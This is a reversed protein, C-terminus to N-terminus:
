QPTEFTNVRNAIESLDELIGLPLSDSLFHVSGDAYATTVGGPHASQLPSNTGPWSNTWVLGASTGSKNNLAYRVTTTNFVRANGDGRFYGLLFGGAQFGGDSLCDMQGGGVGPPAYPTYWSPPNVCWDSQEGLMLTNSSGYKLQAISVGTCSISPNSGEPNPLPTRNLPMVGGYSYIADDEDVYAGNATWQYFNRANPNSVPRFNRRLEGPVDIRHWQQGSDSQLSLAHFPIPRQRVLRLEDRGLRRQRRQQAPRISCAPTSSSRNSIPFCWCGGVIRTTARTPHAPSVPASRWLHDYQVVGSASVSGLRRSIATAGLRSAEHQQASGAPGSGTASPVAPLLMGVLAGIIAIVVLLEVLTFATPTFATPNHALQRRPRRATNGRSAGIAM